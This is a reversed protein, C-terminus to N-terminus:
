AAVAAVVVGRDEIFRVIDALGTQSDDFLITIRAQAAAYDVVRVGRLHRAVAELLEVAPAPGTDRRLHLSARCLTRM